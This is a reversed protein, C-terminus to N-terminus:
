YVGDGVLERQRGSRSRSNRHSGQLTRQHPWGLGPSSGFQDGASHNWKRTGGSQVDARAGARLALTVQSQRQSGLAAEGGAEEGRPLGFKDNM